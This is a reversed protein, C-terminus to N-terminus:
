NNRKDIIGKYGLDNNKLLTILDHFPIINSKRFNNENILNDIEDISLYFVEDVESKQLKLSNLDINKKIYYCDSYCKDYKITEYLTFDDDIDIGLEEKIEKKVTYISSDKYTVHGGTTAIENNKEKSCKQILFKDDENQIFILVIRFYKGKEISLKNCREIYENIVNNNDDYLALKEM